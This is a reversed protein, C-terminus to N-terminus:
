AEAAVAEAYSITEIFIMGSGASAIGTMSIDITDGTSYRKVGLAHYTSDPDTVCDGATAPTITGTAIWGNSADGDGILVDTVGTLATDVRHIVKLVMTGPPVHFSVMSAGLDEYDYYASMWRTIPSKGAAPDRGTEFQFYRTSPQVSAAAVSM